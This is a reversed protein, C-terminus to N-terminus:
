KEAAIRRAIKARENYGMDGLGSILIYRNLRAQVVPASIIKGDIIIAMRDVGLKMKGTAAFMKDGGAKTLKLTIGGGEHVETYTKLVDKSTVVASKSVFLNEKVGNNTITMKVTNGTQKSLVHSVRFVEASSLSSLILLLTIATKM